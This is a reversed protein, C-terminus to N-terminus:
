EIITNPTSQPILLIADFGELIKDLDPDLDTKSSSIEKRISDVDIVVYGEGPIVRRALNIIGKSFTSSIQTRKSSEDRFPIYMNQFGDAPFIGLHFTKGPNKESLYNGIDKVGYFSTGKMVHSAGMKIMIKSETIASTQMEFLEIFRHDLIRM